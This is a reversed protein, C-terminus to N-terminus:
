KGEKRQSDGGCRSEVAEITTTVWRFLGASGRSVGLIRAETYNKIIDKAKLASELDVQEVARQAIQRVIDDKGAKLVKRAEKWDTAIHIPKGLLLQVATIVDKVAQPPAAFSSIEQLDPRLSAVEASVKVKSDIIKFKGRCSTKVSFLFM